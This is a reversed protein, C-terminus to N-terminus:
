ARFETENQLVSDRLARADVLAHHRRPNDHLLAELLDEHRRAMAFGPWGLLVGEVAVVDQWPWLLQSLLRWDTETDYILTVSEEIGTLWHALHEGAADRSLRAAPDGGLLPLVVDTVFETCHEPQWGDTLEAYFERGDESALGFSILRPASFDTFETDLFIRM